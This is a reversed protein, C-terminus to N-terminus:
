TTHSHWPPGPRVYKRQKSPPGVAEIHIRGADLLRSMAADLESKRFGNADSKAMVNPAYTPASANSALDRGQTTLRGLLRLFVEDAAQERSAAELNSMGREPLFLGHQYRLVISEAPKGYNLMKFSLERLDSDPQEGAELKPATMYLRSRVSNHWATSGSLGTGSSIGTLSPHALLVVSGDAVIALKRLLGIFQRVQSRDSEDGAFIDASTDLGIHKPKLDGAQEYLEHFLATPRIINGRDPVGLVADQGALSIFRGGGAKIDVGSCFHMPQGSCFHM